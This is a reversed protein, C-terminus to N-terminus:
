GKEPQNFGSKLRYGSSPFGPEPESTFDCNMSISDNGALTNRQYNSEKERRERGLHALRDFIEVLSQVILACGPDVPM